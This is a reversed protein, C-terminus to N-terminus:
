VELLANLVQFLELELRKKWSSNSELITVKKMIQSSLKIEHGDKDYGEATIIRLGSQNDSVIEKFRDKNFLCGKRKFQVEYTTSEIEGVDLAIDDIFDNRSDYRDDLNSTSMQGNKITRIKVKKLREFEELDVNVLIQSYKIDFLEQLIEKIDNLNGDYYVLKNDIDVVIFRCKLLHKKEKDLSDTLSSISGDPEQIGYSESSSKVYASYVYYRKNKFNEEKIIRSQIISEFGKNNREIKKNDIHLVKLNM